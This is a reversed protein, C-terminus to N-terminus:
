NLVGLRLADRRCVAARLQVLCNFKVYSFRTGDTCFPYIVEIAPVSRLCCPISMREPLGSCVKLAPM